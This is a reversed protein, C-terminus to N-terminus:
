HVGDATTIDKQEVDPKSQRQIGLPYKLHYQMDMKCQRFLSSSYFGYGVFLANQAHLISPLLSFAWNPSGGLGFANQRQERHRTSGVVDEAAKDRLHLHIKCQGNSVSKRMM